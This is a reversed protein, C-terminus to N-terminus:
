YGLLIRPETHTFAGFVANRKLEDKDPVAVLVAFVNNNQWCVTAHRVAFYDVYPSLEV